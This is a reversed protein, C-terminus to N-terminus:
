LSGSKKTLEANQSLCIVYPKVKALEMLLAVIISAM